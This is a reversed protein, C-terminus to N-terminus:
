TGPIVEIVLADLAEVPLAHFRVLGDRDTMGEDAWGDARARVLTGAVEPWRSPCEVRVVVAYHQPSRPVRLVVAELDLDDIMDPSITLRRVVEQSDHSASVGKVAVAGPTTAAHAGPHWHLAVRPLASPRQWVNVQWGHALLVRNPQVAHPTALDNHIRAFLAPALGAGTAAAVVAAVDAASWAADALPAALQQALAPPVDAASALGAELLLWAHPALGARLALQEPDQQSRLRRLLLWKGCQRQQVWDPSPAPGNLRAMLAARLPQPLRPPGLPAEPRDANDM